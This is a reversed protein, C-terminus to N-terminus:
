LYKSKSRMVRVIKHLDLGARNKKAIHRTTKFRNLARQKENAPVSRRKEICAYYIWNRLAEEIFKHVKIETEKILEFDIGDSEYEIVVEQDILKSDFVLNGKDEDITFEGNASLQSTDLFANGESTNCFSYSTYGGAYGESESELIYGDDDFLLFGADDQLYNKSININYNIDLPYLRRSNTSGDYVVVSVRVYHVYDQPMEIYGKAGVTMEIAKVSSAASKTLEKLGLKAHYILLNRNTNKLYSDEDFREMLMSDIIDKLLVFQYNGHLAPDAYYQEPTTM